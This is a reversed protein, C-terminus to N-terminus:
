EMSDHESTMNKSVVKQYDAELQEAEKLKEQMNNATECLSLLYERRDTAKESFGGVELKLKERLEKYYDEKEGERLVLAGNISTVKSSEDKLVSYLSFTENKYDEFNKTKKKELITCIRNIMQKRKDETFYNKKSTTSYMLGTVNNEFQVIIEQLLDELPIQTTNETKGEYVSLMTEIREEERKAYYERDIMVIPIDLQSAAKKVEQWREKLEEKNERDHETENSEEKIWVIYDPMRKKLNKGDFELREFVAENHGDRTRDIMQKPMRFDMGRLTKDGNTSSFATNAETSTLDYPALAILNDPSCNLYGFIPGKPRALAILNQGIFSECNGHYAIKPRQIDIKYDDPARWSPDYAGESRVFMNFDKKIEFTKITKNNYTTTGSYDEENPIYLAETYRKAYISICKKELDTVHINKESEFEQFQNEKMREYMANLEAENLSMIQKIDFIRRQIDLEEETLDNVIQLGNAYKRVLLQADNIDIGYKLQLMAFQKRTIVDMKNISSCFNYSDPNDELIATSVKKRWQEFDLVAKRRNEGEIQITGVGFYNESMLCLNVLGHLTVESTLEEISFRSFDIGDLNKINELLKDLMNIDYDLCYQIMAIRLENENELCHKNNVGLIKSQIESYNTIRALQEISLSSIIPNDFLYLNITTNVEENIGILKLYKEFNENKAEESKDLFFKDLFLRIMKEDKAVDFYTHNWIANLTTKSNVTEMIKQLNDKQTEETLSAWIKEIPISNTKDHAKDKLVLKIMSQLVNEDQYVRSLAKRIKEEENSSDIIKDMVLQLREENSVVDYDIFIGTKLIDNLYKIVAEKDSHIIYEKIEPVESNKNSKDTKEYLKILSPLFNVKMEKSCSNWFNSLAERTMANNYSMSLYHINDMFIEEEWGENGTLSNLKPDYERFYRIHYYINNIASDFLSKQMKPDDTYTIMKLLLPTDFSNSSLVMNPLVSIDEMLFLRSFEQHEVIYYKMEESANDWLKNAIEAYNIEQRISNFLLVASEKEISNFVDLCLEECSISYKESYEKVMYFDIFTKGDITNNKLFKNLAESKKNEM